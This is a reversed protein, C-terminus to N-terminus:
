EDPVEITVDTDNVGVLNAKAINRAAAFMTFAALLQTEIERKRLALAKLNAMELPNGDVSIKAM